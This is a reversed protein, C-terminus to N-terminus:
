ERFKKLKQTTKEAKETQETSIYYIEEVQLIMMEADEKPVYKIIKNRIEQIKTEDKKEIAESFTTKFAQLLKDNFAEKPMFKEFDDRIKAVKPLISEDDTLAEFVLIQNEVLGWDNEPIALLMKKCIKALKKLGEDDHAQRSAQIFKEIFDKDESKNPFQKKLTFYQKEPDLATKGLSIFSEVDSSGFSIHVAEGKPSFYVLAPFSQIQYTKAFEIGEGKEADFKYSVFKENYFDSVDKNPFINKTMEKCPGCWTTYVDVFIFKNEKKAKAKVEAWNGTAFNIQAFASLSIFLLLSIVLLNKM